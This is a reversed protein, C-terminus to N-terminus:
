TSTRPRTRLRHRDRVEGRPAAGVPHARGQPRAPGPLANIELATGPARPPRSCRRSTSTSRPADLRDQAGTLHGIVNVAPNEMARIVRRTMEDKSQTFHSHVSAVTVDFGDLFEEDWDVGGDPDINLETGHLLRM